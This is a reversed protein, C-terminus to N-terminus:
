HLAIAAVSGPGLDTSVTGGQVTVGSLTAPASGRGGYTQGSTLATVTRQLGNFRANVHQTQATSNVMLLYVNGGAQFAETTVGAPAGSGGVTMSDPPVRGFLTQFATAVPRRQGAQNLMGHQRKSWGFDELQWYILASAGKGLLMLAETSAALAYEPSEVDLDAGEERDERDENDGAHKKVGFETIVIPAVSGRALFDAMGPTADNGIQAPSQYVHATVYGLSRLAGKAQLAAAFNAYNKVGAGPGDVKIQNLGARDMAARAKVVLDAYEEPQYKSSWAGQPENTLEVAVPKFDLKDLYLLGATILNAYDTIHDADAFHSQKKAGARKAKATMWVDPMHWFVLHPEIHLQKLEDRLRAVTQRQADSDSRRIVELMQDVSMGPRLQDFALAPTFGVRVFRANLDHLLQSSEAPHKSSPWVQAGFGLFTHASSFNFSVAADAACSAPAFGFGALIALTVRVRGCYAM